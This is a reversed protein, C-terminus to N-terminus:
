AVLVALAAMEALQQSAGLIDGTQGGIKQRAVRAVLATVLAICLVAALAAVAGVLAGALLGALAVALTATIRPVTGVRHSLGTSRAHPLVAMLVPMPARSLIAAALIAAFGAAASGEFLMLIAAYRWSLSLFVAIVGYTGIHSDKMISLRKERDWGGWLGDATDALGDEHLAGTMIVLFALTILACFPLALGAYACFAGLGAAISAVALGVLPYAWAASSGRAYDPSGPLPIRTLLALAVGIDGFRIVAPDTKSMYAAKEATGAFRDAICSFGCVM